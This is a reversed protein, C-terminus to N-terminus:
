PKVKPLGREVFFRLLVLMVHRLKLGVSVAREMVQAWLDDPIDKIPFTPMLGREAHGAARAAGDVRDRQERHLHVQPIHDDHNALLLRVSV